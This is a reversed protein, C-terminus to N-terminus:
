FTRPHEHTRLLNIQSTPAKPRELGLGLKM